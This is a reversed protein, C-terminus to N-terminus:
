NVILPYALTGKRLIPNSIGYTRRVEIKYSGRTLTAPVTFILKGKSRVTNTEVKTMSNDAAIIFIGELPNEPNFKLSAGLLKGLGGPTLSSNTTNSNTDTYELLVPAILPQTIKEVNAKSIADRLLKGTSLAAKKSHRGSEYNDNADKFSGSIGPRINVLPLNVGNGDAVKECVVNFFVTLVAAIDAESITSGKKLMESTISEINYTTSCSVRATQDNADAAITNHRLYYRIAM